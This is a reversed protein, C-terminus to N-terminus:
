NLMSMILTGENIVQVMYVLFDRNLLSLIIIKVFSLVMNMFSKVQKKGYATVPKPVTNETIINNQLGYEAQSGASM